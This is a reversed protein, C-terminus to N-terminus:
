EVIESSFEASLTATGTFDGLEASGKLLESVAGNRVVYMGTASVGFSAAGSSPLNPPQDNDLELGTVFVGGELVLPRM